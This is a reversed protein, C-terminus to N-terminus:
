LLQVCVAGGQRLLVAGGGPHRHLFTTVDYVRNDVVIWCSERTKHKAVEAGDLMKSYTASYVDGSLEVDRFLLENKAQTSQVRVLTSCMDDGCEPCRASRNRRM